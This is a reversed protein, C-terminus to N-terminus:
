PKRLVLDTDVPTHLPRLRPEDMISEAHQREFNELHDEVEMYQEYKRRQDEVDHYGWHGIGHTKPVIVTERDRFLYNAPLHGCHVGRETWEFDNVDEDTVRVAWTRPAEHARWFPPDDRYDFRGRGYQGQRHTDDTSWLDYLYFAWREVSEMEFFQTPDQIPCMDCDEWFLVDGEDANVWGFEFLAQRYKAEHGWMQGADFNPEVFIVDDFSGAIEKSEDESDDDLFFVDDAFTLWAELASRLYRGAEDKCVTLVHIKM